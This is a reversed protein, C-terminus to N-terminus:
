WGGFFASLSERVFLARLHAVGSYGQSRDIGDQTQTRAGALVSSVKRAPRTGQRLTEILINKITIPSDIIRPNSIRNQLVLFRHYIEDCIKFNSALSLFGRIM